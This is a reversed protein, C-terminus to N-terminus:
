PRALSELGPEGVDIVSRLGLADHVQAVGARVVSVLRRLSPRDPADCLLVDMSSAPSERALASWTPATAPCSPAGPSADASSFLARRELPYRRARRAEM